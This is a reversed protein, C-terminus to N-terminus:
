QGANKKKLDEISKEVLVQWQEPQNKTYWDVIFEMMQKQKETCRKCKTQLADNFIESILVLFKSM